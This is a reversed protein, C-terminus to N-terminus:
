VSGSDAKVCFLLIIPAVLHGGQDLPCIHVTCSLTWAIRGRKLEVVGSVPGLM